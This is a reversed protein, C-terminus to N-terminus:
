GGDGGWWQGTYCTLLPILTTVIAGWGWGVVARHLMNTSTDSPNSYGGMWGEVARHLMNTTTDSPNSYGGDGGWWQGTYRTLLPILTGQAEPGTQGWGVRGLFIM